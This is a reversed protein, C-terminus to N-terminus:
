GATIQQYLFILIAGQFFIGFAFGFAGAASAAFLALTRLPLKVTNDLRERRTAYPSAIIETLDRYGGRILLLFIWLWSLFFVGIMIQIWTSIGEMNQIQRLMEIEFM